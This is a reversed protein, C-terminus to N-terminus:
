SWSYHKNASYKETDLKPNEDDRPNDRLRHCNKSEIKNYYINAEKENDFVKTWNTETLGTFPNIAYVTIKVPRESNM